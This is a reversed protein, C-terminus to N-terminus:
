HELLWIVHFFVDIFFRCLGVFILGYVILLLIVAAQKLLKM